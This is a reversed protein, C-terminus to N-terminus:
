IDRTIFITENGKSNFVAELSKKWKNAVSIIVIGQEDFDNVSIVKYGHWLRCTNMYSVIVGSIKIHHSSLLAFTEEAGMGDGYIFVRKELKIRNIENRSLGRIYPYKVNKFFKQLLEEYPKYHSLDINNKEICIIHKIRREFVQLRDIIESYIFDNNCNQRLMILLENYVVLCSYLQGIGLSHSISSSCQRYVYLLDSIAKVREAKILTQLTFLTDEYYINPYFYADKKKLFELNWLQFGCASQYERNEHLLSILKKGDCVPYADKYQIKKLKKKLDESYELASFLLGDLKYAEANQWLIQLTKPVFCDDADLFCIYKGKSKKIAKNRSISLGCNVSNRIITFRSDNEVLRQLQKLSDDTSCDEICIVEFDRFTQKKISQVYDYLYKSKNYIATIVSIKVSMVDEEIGEFM